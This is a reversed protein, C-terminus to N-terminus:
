GVPQPPGLTKFRVQVPSTYGGAAECRFRVTQRGNSLQPIASNAATTRLLNWDADYVLGRGDGEAVLYEGPQLRVPFTAQRGNVEFTPNAIFGGAGGGQDPVVRLTFRLPQEAFRNDVEWTPASAPQTAVRTSDYAFVHSFALPTLRWRGEGAPELHFESGPERLHARQADSFAGTHRARDWQSIATLIANTQGLRRLVDLSTFWACGANLAACKALAWEVDDLSTAELQASASQIQFWGLMPPLLNRRFYEQNKFRYEPMGERVAKGWPEGWNMRTHIHWTFHKLQSSDSIVEQQWGDFCKKVFRAEAYEAAGTVQCGELGDFSIQRLGTTNFLDALRAAMEDQLELDPFFVRYSHDWLKGIDAGAAHAAATTGFAGRQCGLLAWSQSESVAEYQVLEQGLVATSLWQRHRFPAPEAIPIVTAQADVPGALQSSGLRALRPHPVPSVYPDTPQIFNSLTHVGV